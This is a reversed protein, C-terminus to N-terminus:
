GSIERTSRSTWMRSGTSSGTTSPPRLANTSCRATVAPGFRMSWMPARGGARAVLTPILEPPDQLDGDIVVVADGKSHDIGATIAAQHGFNRSLELVRLDPDETAFATLRALTGDDSGDDVVILELGIPPSITAVATKIRAVLEAVTDVENFVPTVVSLVVRENAERSNM